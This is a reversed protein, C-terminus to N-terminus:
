VASCFMHDFGWRVRFCLKLLFIQIGYICGDLLGANQTDLAAAATVILYTISLSETQFKSSQGGGTATATVRFVLFM